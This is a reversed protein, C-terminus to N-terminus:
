KKRNKNELYLESWQIIGIFSDAGWCFVSSALPLLYYLPDWTYFNYLFIAILLGSWFGLCLSCKFLEDLIKIKILPSRLWGLISGYKLIFTLGACALLVFAHTM